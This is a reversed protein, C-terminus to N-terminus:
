VVSKRDPAQFSQSSLNMAAFPTIGSQYPSSPIRGSALMHARADNVDHTPDTISGVAARQKLTNQESVLSPGSKGDPQHFLQNQTDWYALLENGPAHATQGFSTKGALLQVSPITSHTEKGAEGSPFQSQKSRGSKGQLINLKVFQSKLGIFRSGSIMKMLLLSLYLLALSFM